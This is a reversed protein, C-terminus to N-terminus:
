LSTVGRPCFVSVLTHFEMLRVLMQRRRYNQTTLVLSDFDEVITLNSKLLRVYPIRNSDEQSGYDLTAEMAGIMAVMKMEDQSFIVVAQLCSSILCHIPSVQLIQVAPPLQLLVALTPPLLLHCCRTPCNLSITCSVLHSRASVVSIGLQIPLGRGLEQFYCLVILDLKKNPILRCNGDSSSSCSDFM